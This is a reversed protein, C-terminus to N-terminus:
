ESERPPPLKLTDLQQSINSVCIPEKSAFSGKAGSSPTSVLEVQVKPIEHQCSQLNIYFGWKESGLAGGWLMRFHKHQWKTKQKNTKGLPFYDVLTLYVKMALELVLNATPPLYFFNSLFATEIGEERSRKRKRKKKQSRNLTVM